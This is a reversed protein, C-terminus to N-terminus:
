KDEKDDFDEIIPGGEYIMHSIDEQLRQIRKKAEKIEEESFKHTKILKELEELSAVKSLLDKM